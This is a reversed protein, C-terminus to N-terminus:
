LPRIAISATSLAASSGGTDSMDICFAGGATSKLTQTSPNTAEATATVKVPVIAAQKTVKLEDISNLKDALQDIAAKAQSELNCEVTLTTAPQITAECARANSHTLTKTGGVEPQHDTAKVATAATLAKHARLEAQKATLTTIAATVPGEVTTLATTLDAARATAEALLCGYIPGLNTSSYRAATVTLTKVKNMQKAAQKKTPDVKTKLGAILTDYYHNEARFSTITAHAATVVHDAASTATFSILSAALLCLKSPTKGKGLTGKQQRRPM